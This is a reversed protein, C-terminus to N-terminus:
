GMTEPFENGGSKVSKNYRDVNDKDWLNWFKLLLFDESVVGVHFEKEVFWVCYAYERDIESFDGSHKALNQRLM